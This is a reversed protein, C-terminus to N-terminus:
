SVSRRFMGPPAIVNEVGAETSTVLLVQFPDNGAGAVLRTTPVFTSATSTCWDAVPALSKSKPVSSSAVGTGGVFVDSANLSIAPAVFAENQSSSAFLPM